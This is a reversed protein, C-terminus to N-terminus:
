QTKPPRGKCPPNAAFKEADRRRVFKRGERWRFRFAGRRCLQHVRARTRGILEAAKTTTIWEDMSITYRAFTVM